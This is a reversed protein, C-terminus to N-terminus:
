QRAPLDIKITHTQPPIPALLIVAASVIGLLAWIYKCQRLDIAARVTCYIVAVLAAIGWLLIGDPM